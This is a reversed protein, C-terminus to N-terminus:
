IIRLICQKVCLQEIKIIMSQFEDCMHELNKIFIYFDVNPYVFPELLIDGLKAKKNYTEFSILEQKCSSYKIFNLLQKIFKYNHANNSTNIRIGM